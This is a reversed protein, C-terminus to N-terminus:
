LNNILVKKQTNQTTGAKINSNINSSSKKSLTKRWAMIPTDNASSPDLNM